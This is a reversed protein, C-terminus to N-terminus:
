HLRELDFKRECIGPIDTAIVTGVAQLYWLWNDVAQEYPSLSQDAIVDDLLQQYHEADDVSVFRWQLSAADGLMLHTAEHAGQSYFDYWQSVVPSSPSATYSVIAPM